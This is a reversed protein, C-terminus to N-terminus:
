FRMPTEAEFFLTADAAGSLVVVCFAWSVATYLVVM